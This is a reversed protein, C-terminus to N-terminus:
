SRSAKDNAEASTVRWFGPTRGTIKKLTRSFHQPHSFGLAAAIEKQTMGGRALLTRATDVRGAMQWAKMSRGLESRFRKRLTEQSLGTETSLRATTEAVTLREVDLMRKASVIWADETAGQNRASFTEALFAVLRGVCTDHTDGNEADPLIERIHKRWKAVPTLRRVPGSLAGHLEMCDFIPGRFSIYMESWSSGPKPGYRHAVRPNVLICDGPLIECHHGTEDEYEAEGTVSIVYVIARGQYRRYRPVASRGNELVSSEFIEGLVGRGEPLPLGTVSFSPTDNRDM